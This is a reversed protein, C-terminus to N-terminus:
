FDAIEGCWQPVRRNMCLGKPVVLCLFPELHNVPTQPRITLPVTDRCLITLVEVFYDAADPAYMVTSMSRLSSEVGVKLVGSRQHSEPLHRM